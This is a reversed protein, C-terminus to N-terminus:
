KAGPKIRGAGAQLFAFLGTLPNDPDEGLKLKDNLLGHHRALTTLAGLKDAMKIKMVTGRGADANGFQVIDVGVLASAIDDPLEQIPLPNGDNDVLKRIDFFALRGLEAIVREATIETQEMKGKIVEALRAKVEPRNAFACSKESTKQPSLNQDPYAARYADSKTKGSAIATVFAEIRHAQTVTGKM